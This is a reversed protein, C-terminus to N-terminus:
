VPKYDGIILFAFIFPLTPYPKLSIALKESTEWKLKSRLTRMENMMSIINSCNREFALSSTKYKLFFHNLENLNKLNTCLNSSDIPDRYLSIFSM